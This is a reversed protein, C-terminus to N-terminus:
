VKGKRKPEQTLRLRLTRCIKDIAQINLGRTGDMFRYLQATNMDCQRSLKAISVGSGRIAEKLDRILDFEKEDENTRTAM